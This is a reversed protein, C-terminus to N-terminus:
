AKGEFTRRPYGTAGDPLPARRQERMVEGNGDTARLVMKMQDDRAEFPFVWRVWTFPANLAPELTADAFTDGDDLSIEVRSIGRNGASAVGAAVAPGVPTDDGSNPTDIRGWIQTTADDSWGRTQWYGQFDEDVVEIRELWKVNKMGYIGPVIMRAPFGHDDTLPAGNLGVVVLVNPDMAKDITISDEYDDACHFKVDVAGEKVGAEDLLSKLSFGQWEGTSILDGNLENSICCLTTINKTAARNFVDDYTLTLEQNVLGTVKLEWGDSSVTPDSLNKSVHYFDEVTTLVPTINEEADLQQFLAVPDTVVAPTPTPTLAQNAQQTAVISDVADQQAATTGVSQKKPNLFRWSLGGVAVVGAITGAALVGRQWVERRSIDEVSQQSLPAPVREFSWVLAWVIGYIGFTVILQALIDSTYSSNRAFLGLHAIPMVVVLTFMLFVAAVILGASVRGLWGHKIRESLRGAWIGGYYGAALIGVIVAVFLSKKALSGYNETASGFISLPTLRSIAAVIFEPFAQVVGDDSWNLRWILQTALMVLAAFFGAQGARARDLYAYTSPTRTMAVTDSTM